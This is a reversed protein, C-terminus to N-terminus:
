RGQALAGAARESREGARARKMAFVDERPRWEYEADALTPTWHLVGGKRWPDLVVGEFMTDGRRSVIVTSHDIRFSEDANAIARHLDLTRFDEKLLRLELDDAWHWCLGRPKLGMNVKMNHILPPDAIRYERALRDTQEFAVRAARRAEEPDVDPGLAGIARALAAIEGPDAPQRAGAEPATNACGAALLATMPLVLALLKLIQRAGSGAGAMLAAPGPIAPQRSFAQGVAFQAKLVTEMDDSKAEPVVAGPDRLEPADAPRM